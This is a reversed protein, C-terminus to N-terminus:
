TRSQPHALKRTPSRDSRRRQALRMAVFMSVVVVVWFAEVAVAVWEHTGLTGGERRWCRPTTDGVPPYAESAYSGVIHAFLPSQRAHHIEHWTVGGLRQFDPASLNGQILIQQPRAPAARLTELDPPHDGSHVAVTPQSKLSAVVQTAAIDRLRVGPDRAICLLVRAHNTLFSWEAM